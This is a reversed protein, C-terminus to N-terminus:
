RRGSVSRNNSPPKSFGPQECWSPLGSARIEARGSTQDLCVLFPADPAPSWLREQCGGFVVAGSLGWVRGSRVAKLCLLSGGTLVLGPLPNGHDPM